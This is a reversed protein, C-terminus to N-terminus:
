EYAYTRIELTKGNASVRKRKTRFGKKDYSYFDTYRLENTKDFVKREIVDGYKNYLYERRQKINEKRSVDRDEILQRKKNYVYIRRDYSPTKETWEKEQPRDVSEDILLRNHYSRKEHKKIEGNEQYDIKEVWEGNKDYREIQSVFSPLAENNDNFKETTTTRKTIGYTRLMKKSQANAVMTMGLFFFFIIIYKKM